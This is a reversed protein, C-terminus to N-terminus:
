PALSRPARASPSGVATPLRPAASQLRDLSALAHLMKERDAARLHPETGLAALYRRWAAEARPPDIREYVLAAARHGDAEPLGAARALLEGRELEALAGDRRGLAGLTAALRFRPQPDRPDLRAAEAFARAAEDPQGNARLAEGLFLWSQVLEPRIAAAARAHALAEAERGKLSLVFALGQRAHTLGPAIELARTYHALAQDPDAPWLASALNVHAIPSRPDLRVAHRWLAVSDQWVLTQWATLAVLGVIAIAGAAIAGAAPAAGRGGRGWRDACWAIGAGALLTWGLGALYTYRDAAIQPGNQVLGSVPLVMLVCSAWAAALGPWPRRRAVALATVAVVVVAGVLPLGPGSALVSRYDYLPSLGIPLVTKGLYLALGYAVAALREAATIAELDAISGFELRARVAIAAAALALAAFPLKELWVRRVSRGLWGGPGAGLRRLPYVDLVVLVLPLTVAIAKSALALAFLAVSALYWLRPARTLASTGDCSRLYALVSLLALLGALVDGRTSLWTVPETRLPHVAFLLAAGMAGLRLAVDSPGPGLGLRLLRRAMFLAAVAAAAHLAISTLHYAGPRLGWLAYDAGHTLWTLPRYHGMHFTTLMWAVQRPGLGRWSTQDLFAREDDWSLFDGFLGPLFAAVAVAAVVLPDSWRAQTWSTVTAHSARPSRALLRCPGFTARGSGPPGVATATVDLRGLLARRRDRKSAAYQEDSQLPSRDGHENWLPGGGHRLQQHGERERQRKGLLHQRHQRHHGLRPRGGMARRRYPRRRTVGLRTYVESLACSQSPGRSAACAQMATLASGALAKGEALRADRTYGLYLPVGVAALIGVILIVILLEILTFGKQGRKGVAMKRAALLM